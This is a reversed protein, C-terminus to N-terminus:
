NSSLNLTHLIMRFSSLSLGQRQVGRQLAVSLRLGVGQFNLLARSQSISSSQMARLPLPTKWIVSLPRLKRVKKDFQVEILDSVGHSRLIPESVDPHRKKDESFDYLLDLIGSILLLELGAQFKELVGYGLYAFSIKINLM